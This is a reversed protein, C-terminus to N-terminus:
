FRVVAYVPALIRRRRRGSHQRGYAPRMGYRASLGTNVPSPFPSAGSRGMPLATASPYRRRRRLASRPASRMATAAHRPTALTRGLSQSMYGITRRPTPRRRALSTATRAAVRPLASIMRRTRPKRGFLSGLAKIGKGIHPIVKPLLKAGLSAIIPIFQDAEEQSEANAARDAYYQMEYLTELDGGAAEFDGEFDGEMDGEFDGELEAERMAQSAITTALKRGAPGGIAQGLTSAGMGVVQKLLPKSIVKPILKRVRRLAKGIFPDGEFDEPDFSAEFDEFDEMDELDEMDEFDEMDELDEFDEFTQTDLELTEYDHM